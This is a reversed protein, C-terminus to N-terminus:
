KNSNINHTIIEVVVVVFFLPRDDECMISVSMEGKRRVKTSESKKAKM